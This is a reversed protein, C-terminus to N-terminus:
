KPLDKKFLYGKCSKRKGNCVLGINTSNSYTGFCKFSAERLSNFSDILVGEKTYRSVNINVGGIYGRKIASKSMLERSSDKHKKGIWSRGDNKYGSLRAKELNLNVITTRKLKNKSWAEKLKAKTIISVEKRNPNVPNLELNLLNIHNQNDIFQKELVILDVENEVIELIVVKLSPEKYKNFFRQLKSNAHKNNRLHNLHYNIRRYLCSSSGIYVKDNILSKIAYVGSKKYFDKRKLNEM